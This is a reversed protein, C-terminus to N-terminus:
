HVSCPHGTILYQFKLQFNQSRRRHKHSLVCSGDGVNMLTPAPAANSDTDCLLDHSRAPAMSPSSFLPAPAGGVNDFNIGGATHQTTSLIEPSSLTTRSQGHISSGVTDHRASPLSRLDLWIKLLALFLASLKGSAFRTTCLDLKRTRGILLVSALIAPMSFRNQSGLCRTVWDTQQVLKQIWPDGGRIWSDFHHM